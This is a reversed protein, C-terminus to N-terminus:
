KKRTKQERVVVVVAFIILTMAFLLSSLKKTQYFDALGGVLIGLGILAVLGYKISRM